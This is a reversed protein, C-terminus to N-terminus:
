IEVRVAGTLLGQMLGRKQAQLQTLQKQLLEIEKDAARLVSAIKQQESIKPIKFPIESLYSWDARPMKSGTTANAEEIFKNSQVLFFLYDNSCVGKISDLVWIESSCVGTFSTFWFKRLYPRLKGFLVQGESFTNKISKQNKSDTWGNITGTDQNLHELEICKKSTSDKKCDFKGIARQAIKGFELIVWEGEFGEFRQKGTLLRQMLGKKFQQKAAILQQQKAIARDWTSLIAAIKQQEPTTPLVIRLKQINGKSIGYVKSGTAITKLAKKVLPNRFIYVRFGEMTKNTNDRFAFTHLGSTVKKENINKLEVAQGVGEYDESADAIVLDGDKLFTTNESLVIDRNIKPVRNENEFDLIPQKYTAHIDGYHINYIGEEVEYNLQNRSLSNASLFEFVEDIRPTEWEEPIRGLQTQKYGRWKEFSDTNNNKATIHVSEQM